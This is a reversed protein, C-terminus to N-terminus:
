RGLSFTGGTGLLMGGSPTTGSPQIVQGSDSNMGEFVNQKRAPPETDPTNAQGSRYHYWPDEGRTVMDEVELMHSQVRQIVRKQIDSPSSTGGGLSTYAQIYVPTLESRIAAARAEPTPYEKQDGYRELMIKRMNGRIIRAETMANATDGNKAAEARANTLASEYGKLYYSLDTATIIGNEMKRYSDTEEPTMPTSGKRAAAESAVIKEVRFAIPKTHDARLADQQKALTVGTEANLKDRELELASKKLGMGEAINKQLAERTLRQQELRAAIVGVQMKADGQRQALGAPVAQGSQAFANAAQWSAEAGSTDVGFSPSQTAAQQAPATPQTTAVPANATAGSSERLSGPVFKEGPGLTVGQPLSPASEQASPSFVPVKQCGNPGCQMRYQPEESTQYQTQRVAGPNANSGAAFQFPSREGGGDEGKDVPTEGDFLDEDLRDARLRTPPSVSSIDVGQARDAMAQSDLPNITGRMGPSDGGALGPPTYESRRFRRPQRIQALLKELPEPQALPQAM